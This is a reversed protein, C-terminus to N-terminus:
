VYLKVHETVQGSVPSSEPKLAPEERDLDRVLDEYRAAMDLHARRAKHHGARIAAFFEERARRRFYEANAEM